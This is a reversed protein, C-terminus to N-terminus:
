FKFKEIEGISDIQHNVKSQKHQYMNEDAKAVAHQITENPPKFYAGYSIAESYPELLAISEKMKTFIVFEDGGIRIIASKNFLIRLNKGIISILNSGISHGYKDNIYKLDNIDVYIVNIAIDNYLKPCVSDFYDRNKCRTLSDRYVRNNPQRLYLWEIINFM